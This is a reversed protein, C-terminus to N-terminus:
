PSLVEHLLLEAPLVDGQYRPADGNPFPEVQQNVGLKALVAGPHPRLPSHVAGAEDRVEDRHRGGHRRVGRAPEDVRRQGQNPLLARLQERRRAAAPDVGGALRPRHQPVAPRVPPRARHRERVVPRDLHLRVVGASEHVGQLGVRPRLPLSPRAWPAPEQGSPPPSHTVSATAQRSTKAAGQRWPSPLGEALRLGRLGVGRRDRRNPEAQPTAYRGQRLRVLDM